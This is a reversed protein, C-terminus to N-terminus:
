GAKPSLDDRAKDLLLLIYRVGTIWLACYALSFLAFFFLQGLATQPTLGGFVPVLALNTLALLGVFLAAACLLVRRPQGKTRTFGITLGSLGTALLFVAAEQPSILILPFAASIYVVVGLPLSLASALAVPLTAFFRLVLGAGSLWVPSSQFLFALAALVGGTLIARAPSHINMAMAGRDNVLYIFHIVPIYGRHTNGGSQGPM